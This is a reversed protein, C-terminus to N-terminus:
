SFVCDFYSMLHVWIHIMLFFWTTLGFLYTRVFLSSLATRLLLCIQLFWALNCKWRSLLTTRWFFLFCPSDTLWIIRFLTTFSMMMMAMMIMLMVVCSVVLFMIFITLLIDFVSLCKFSAKTIQDRITTLGEEKVSWCYKIFILSFYRLWNWIEFCLKIIFVAILNSIGLHIYLIGFSFTMSITQFFYYNLCRGLSLVWFIPVDNWWSYETIFWYGLCGVISSQLDM